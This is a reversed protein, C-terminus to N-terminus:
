IMCWNTGRRRRCLLIAQFVAGSVGLLGGVLVAALIRPMRVDAVVTVAVPDLGAPQAQGLLRAWVIAFVDPISVQLFGLTASLAIGFILTAMLPLFLMARHDPLM